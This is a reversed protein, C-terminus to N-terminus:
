VLAQYGARPPWRKVEGRQRSVALTESFSNISVSLALFKELVSSFLYLGSDVYKSEDFELTAEVGRALGRLEGKGIRRMVQRNRVAVLGLIQLDNHERMKPTDAFNYLQLIARLVDPSGHEDVDLASLYNLSLHSILPWQAGRAAPPRLTPTPKTLCRASKVPPAGEVDLEASPGLAEPLDRNTCTVDVTLVDTTATTPRLELDVLSLYVDTGSLGKRESQRRSMQWFATASRNDFSHQLSYFPRYHTTEGTAASTGIVADVSYVETSSQRKVDPVVPYETHAHDLRIPEASQKFLNVIPTCGLRFTTADLSQTEPLARDLLFVLEFETAVDVTQIAELGAIDFFLFKRPFCFYELLLRYGVHSRTSYPLLAEERAFGVEGPNVRDSERLVDPLFTGADTAGPKRIAIGLGRSMIAEYLPHVLKDEGSLFFRLTRLDLERLAINGSTGVRVVIASSASRGARGPMGAPAVYARRVELPWLTVPYCTRFRCTPVERTKSFLTKHRPIEYGTSVRGQDPDLTFQAISMAPVPALYHPYLVQLLAETVEPFEDDLKLHVRAALLAFSEILREVHPDQCRDPELLLRGAVHPHQEAFDNALHRIYTLEREYLKLLEERM